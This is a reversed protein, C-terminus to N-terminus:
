DGATTVPRDVDEASAGQNTGARDRYDRLRIIVDDSIRTDICSDAARLDSLQRALATSKENIRDRERATAALMRDTEDYRVQQQQMSESVHRLADETQDIKTQQIGIKYIAAALTALLLCMSAVGLIKSYM